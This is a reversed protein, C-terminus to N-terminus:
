DTIAKITLDFIRSINVATKTLTSEVNLTSSNVDAMQWTCPHGPFGASCSRTMEDPFKPTVKRTSSIGRSSIAFPLWRFMSTDKPCLTDVSIIAPMKTIKSSRTVHSKPCRTCNEVRDRGLSFSIFM